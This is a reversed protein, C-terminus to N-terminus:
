KDLKGSAEMEAIEQLMESGVNSVSIGGFLFALHVVATMEEWTAGARRAAIGHLKAADRLTIILMGFLMLQATKVDFCEPYMAHKRMKEQIALLEPDIRSLLDTRAKVRPPVFGLLDVYASRIQEMEAADIKPEPLTNKADGM